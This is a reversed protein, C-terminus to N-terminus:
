GSCVYWKTFDLKASEVYKCPTRLRYQQPPPPTPPFISSAYARKEEDTDRQWVQAKDKMGKKMVM